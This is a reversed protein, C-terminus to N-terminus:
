RLTSGQAAAVPSGDMREFVCWLGGLSHQVRVALRYSQQFRPDLRLQEQAAFAMEQCNTTGVFVFYRPSKDFARAVYGPGTKNTYGGPLKSIVPDVLGLLDFIPYDTEYGVYGIDGLAVEGPRGARVLWYAVGGAASDWFVKEVRLIRAQAAHLRESRVGAIILLVIVVTATAVASRLRSSGGGFRTRRALAIASEGLARVGLCAIVFAFPEFPALFRFYPMWDGGVLWVYGSVCVMLTVLCWADELHVRSSQDAPAAESKRGPLPAFAILACVGLATLLMAPLAHHAYASLYARGARLQLVLDGTKASLTNPLWTGYYAHRWMLHAGIMGAFIAGRVLNQRHFMARGLFLMAVGIFMPAEPRTLGALGFVIASWPFGEGADRERLLLELGVLVLCTFFATELGFVAYGTQVVSTAMLWTAICPIWRFPRIRDSLLYVAILSGCAAIAGLWKALLEPDLHL